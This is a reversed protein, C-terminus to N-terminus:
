QISLQLWILLRTVRVAVRTRVALCSTLCQTVSSEAFKLILHYLKEAHQRLWALYHTYNKSSEMWASGM